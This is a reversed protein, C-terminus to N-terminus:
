IIRQPLVDHLAWAASEKTMNTLLKGKACVDIVNEYSHVLDM